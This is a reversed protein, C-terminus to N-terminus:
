ASERIAYSRGFCFRGTRDNPMLHLLAKVLRTWLLACRPLKANKPKFGRRMLPADDDEDLIRVLANQIRMFTECEDEIETESRQRTQHSPLATWLVVFPVLYLPPARAPLM